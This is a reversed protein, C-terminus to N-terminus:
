GQRGRYYLRMAETITFLTHNFNHREPDWVHRAEVPHRLNYFELTTSNCILQRKQDNYNPHVRLHPAEINPLWRDDDGLKYDKTIPNVFQASPPWEPYCHFQLRLLFFDASPSWLPVCLTLGDIRCWGAEELTRGKLALPLDRELAEGGRAPDPVPTENANAM